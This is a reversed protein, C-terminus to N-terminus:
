SVDSSPLFNTDLLRSDHPRNSGGNIRDQPYYCIQTAHSGRRLRRRARTVIERVAMVEMLPEAKEGSTCIVLDSASTCVGRDVGVYPDPLM